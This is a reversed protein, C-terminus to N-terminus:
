HTTRILLLRLEGAAEAAQPHDRVTRAYWEIAADRNGLQLHRRAIDTGVAAFWPRIRAPESRYALHMSEYARAMMEAAEAKRGDLDLLDALNIMAGWALPNLRIAHRNVAAAESRRGLSALVLARTQHAEFARPEARVAADALDLAHTLQRREGAGALRGSRLAHQLRSGSVPREVGDPWRIVRQVLAGSLGALAAANAPEGALVRTFLAIAADNERVSYQSYADRARDITQENVGSARSARTALFAGSALAAVVLLVHVAHRPRARKALSAGPAAGAFRPTVVLRYGRKPITEVTCVDGPGDRLAARLKFICRALADEGVTVRPWLMDLLEGRSLVRGPEAGLAFLLDMVKPEVQRCTDPGVLRGAMRDAIWSGLEM